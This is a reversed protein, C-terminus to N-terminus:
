NQEKKVKESKERALAYATEMVERIEEENPCCVFAIDSAVFYLNAVVAKTGLEKSNKEILKHMKKVFNAMDYIDDPTLNSM